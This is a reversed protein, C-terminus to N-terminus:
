DNPYFLFRHSAPEDFKLILQETYSLMQHFDNEEMTNVAYNILQHQTAKVIGTGGQIMKTTLFGFNMSRMSKLYIEDFMLDGLQSLLQKVPARQERWKGAQIQQAISLRLAEAQLPIPFGTKALLGGSEDSVCLSLQRIHNAAVKIQKEDLKPVVQKTLRMITSTLTGLTSNVFREAGPGIDMAALADLVYAKNSEQNFHHVIDILVQHQKWNGQDMEYLLTETRKRLEPSTNFAAYCYANNASMM